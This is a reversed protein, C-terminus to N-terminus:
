ALVRQAIVTVALWFPVSLALANILGLMPDVADHTDDLFEHDVVIM